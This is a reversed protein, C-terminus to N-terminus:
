FHEPLVYGSLGPHAPTYPKTPLPKAAFRVYKSFECLTNQVDMCSPLRDGLRVTGSNRLSDVGWDIVKRPDAGPWVAAAGKVAGPGAIVFDNERDEGCHPTYGWDTLIQMSMFNAVGKNGCLANFRARQLTAGLFLEAVNGDIFLRRTLDMISDFKDTGPVTSQPFVLYAGTFIPRKYTKTKHKRIGGPTSPGGSGWKFDGRYAKWAAIVDDLNDRTPYGTTMELVKWAEVRGTHRYLFLRMLQDAPDLEPDILDTLVFQSGYDLVRYVNTFKKGAIIPDDTWTRQDLGASRRVWARHRQEVFSLYALAADADIMM